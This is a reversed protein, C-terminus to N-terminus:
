RLRWPCPPFLEHGAGDVVSAWIESAGQDRDVARGHGAFEDFAFEESVGRSGEAPGALLSLGTQDFLRGAPAEEQVLDPFEGLGGLGLEQAEELMALEVGQAGGGFARHLRTDQGRRVAVELVHDGPAGETLIEKETQRDDTDAHRGQGAAPLVDQGQRLQEQM